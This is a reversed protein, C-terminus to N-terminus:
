HGGWPTKSFLYSIAVLLLLVAGPLWLWPVGVRWGIVLGPVLILLGFIIMLDGFLYLLQFFHKM